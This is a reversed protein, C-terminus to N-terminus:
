TWVWPFLKLLFTLSETAWHSTDHFRGWHPKVTVTNAEWSGTWQLSKIWPPDLIAWSGAWPTRETSRDMKFTSCSRWLYVIIDWHDTQQTTQWLKDHLLVFDGPYDAQDIRSCPYYYHLWLCGSYIGRNWYMLIGLVRAILTTKFM